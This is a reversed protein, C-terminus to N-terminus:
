AALDGVVDALRDITVGMGAEMGTAAAGEYSDVTPFVIKTVLETQADKETLTVTVDAAHENYPAVDYIQTCLLRDPPTVESFTGKMPVEEGSAVRAVYRYEGGVRLDVDCVTMTMTDCVWWRRILDPETYARWVLRKPADFTRIATISRETASTQTITQM